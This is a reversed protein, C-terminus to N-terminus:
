KIGRYERHRRVKTKKTETKKRYYVTNGDDYRRPESIVASRIFGKAYAVPSTESEPYWGILLFPFMVALAILARIAFDVPLYIMVLAAPVLAALLFLLQKATILGGIKPPRAKIDPTTTVKIM